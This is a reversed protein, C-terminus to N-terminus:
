NWTVIKLELSEYRIEISLFHPREEVYPINKIELSLKVLTPGGKKPELPSGDHPSKM